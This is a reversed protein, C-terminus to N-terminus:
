ESEKIWRNNLRSGYSIKAMEIGEQRLFYFGVSQGDNWWRINRFWHDQALQSVMERDADEPIEIPGAPDSTADEERARARPRGIVVKDTRLLKIDDFNFSVLAIEEKLNSIPIREGQSDRMVFDDTFLKVALDRAYELREKPATGTDEDGPPTLKITMVCRTQSMEIRYGDHEWAIRSTDTKGFEDRLFAMAGDAPPLWEPDLVYRMWGRSGEKVYAVAQDGPDVSKEGKFVSENPWQFLNYASPPIAEKLTTPEKPKGDPLQASAAVSIFWLYSVTALAHIRM